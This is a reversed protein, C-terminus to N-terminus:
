RLQSKRNRSENRKWGYECAISFEEEDMEVVDERCERALDM